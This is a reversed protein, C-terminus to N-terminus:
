FSDVGVTPGLKAGVLPFGDGAVGADRMFNGDGLLALLGFEPPESGIAASLISLKSSGSDTLEPANWFGVRVRKSVRCVCDGM